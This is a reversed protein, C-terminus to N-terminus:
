RKGLRKEADSMEVQAWMTATGKENKSPLEGGLTEQQAAEECQGSKIGWGGQSNKEGKKPM